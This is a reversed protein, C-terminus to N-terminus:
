EPITEETESESYIAMSYVFLLIVEAGSCCSESTVEFYM